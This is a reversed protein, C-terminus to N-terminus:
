TRGLYRSLRGSFLLVKNGLPQAAPVMNKGWPKLLNEDNLSHNPRPSFERELSEMEGRAVLPSINAPQTRSKPMRATEDEGKVAFISSYAATSLIVPLSLTELTHREIRVYRGGNTSVDRLCIALRERTERAYDCCNLIALVTREEESLQIIPLSLHLGKNNFVMPTRISDLYGDVVPAAAEIFNRACKFSAPSHALLSFTQRAGTDHLPAHADGTTWAFISQDESTKMIEQQLRRFAGAEREGYLLPMQIDFIGLPCYAIDEAKTTERNSAWSMRM